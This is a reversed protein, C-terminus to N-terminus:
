GTARLSCARCPVPSSALNGLMGSPYQLFSRAGWLAFSRTAIDLLHPAAWRSVPRHGRTAFVQSGVNATPSPWHRLHTWVRVEEKPAARGSGHVAALWSSPGASAFRSTQVIQQQANQVCERGQGKRRAESPGGSPLPQLLRLTLASPCFIPDPMIRDNSFKVTHSTDCLRPRSDRLTCNRGLDSAQRLHCAM